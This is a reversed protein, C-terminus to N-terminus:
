FGLTKSVLDVGITPNHTPCFNGYVFKNIISTKGTSLDGMFVVKHTYVPQSADIGPDVM